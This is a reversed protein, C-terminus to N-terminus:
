VILYFWFASFIIHTGMGTDGSLLVSVLLISLEIGIIHISANLQM